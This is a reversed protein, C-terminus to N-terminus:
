TEPVKSAFAEIPLPVAWEAAIYRTLRTNGFFHPVVESRM